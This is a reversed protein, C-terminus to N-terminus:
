GGDWCGIGPIRVAKTTLFTSAIQAGYQAMASAAEGPLITKAKRWDDLDIEGGSPPDLRTIRDRGILLGAQGLANMSQFHMAAFIINAWLLKGGLLRQLRSITYPDEGCGISLIVIDTRETKFSSM